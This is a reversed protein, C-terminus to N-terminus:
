HPPEDEPPPTAPTANVPAPTVVTPPTANLAKAPPIANTPAQDSTDEDDSADTNTAKPAPKAPAEIREQSLPTAETANIVAVGGAPQGAAREGPLRGGREPANIIGMVFSGLAAAGLLGAVWTLVPRPMTWIMPAVRTM